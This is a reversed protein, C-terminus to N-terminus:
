QLAPLGSMVSCVDKLHLRPSQLKARQRSMQACRQRGLYRGCIKLGERRQTGVFIGIARGIVLDIVEKFPLAISWFATVRM